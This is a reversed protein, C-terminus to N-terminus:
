GVINYLPNCEDWTFIIFSNLIIFPRNFISSGVVVLTSPFLNLAIVKKTSNIYLNFKLIKPDLTYICPFSHKTQAQIIQGFLTTNQLIIRLYLYEPIAQISDHKYYYTHVLNNCIHFPIHPCPSSKKNSLLFIFLFLNCQCPFYLYRYPAFLYTM